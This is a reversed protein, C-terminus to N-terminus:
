ACREPDLLSLDVVQGWRGKGPDALWEEVTPLTREGQLAVSCRAVTVDLYEGYKQLVAEQVDFAADANTYDSEAVSFGDGYQEVRVHVVYVAM